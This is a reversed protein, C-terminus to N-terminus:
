LRVRPDVISYAVDALLNGIIVLVAAFMVTGMILPYDHGVAATFTLQGMGPYNFIQEIILAGGFLEPVALGMLTILPLLANRLGHRFIVLREMLGKSRATRIYDQSLVELMQSRIYRTWLATQVFALAFAPLILHEIRDGFGGGGRLDYIGGAPLSPFGWQKFKVAFLLLLMLALWFTPVSYGTVAGATTVHDFWTNRRVAGFVGIPIAFLLALLFATTTLLLTNPLSHLIMRLVPQHTRMSLGLNGQLVNGAWSFYRVYLPQDLGYYATIRDIDAQSLERNAEMQVVLDTVPNGPVLNAIAFVLVSIGILLPVMQILRRAIHQVM